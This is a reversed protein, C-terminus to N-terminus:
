AKKARTEEDPTPGEEKRSKHGPPVVPGSGETTMEWNKPTDGSANNERAKLVEDSPFAAPDTPGYNADSAQRVFDSEDNVGLVNAISTAIAQKDYVPVGETFWIAHALLEERKSTKAM